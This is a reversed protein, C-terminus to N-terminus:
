SLQTLYRPHDSLGLGVGVGRVAVPVEVREPIPILTSYTGNESSFFFHLTASGM